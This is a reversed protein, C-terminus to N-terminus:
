LLIKSKIKSLVMMVRKGHDFIKHNNKSNQSYNILEDIMLSVSEQHLINPIEIEGTRYMMQNIKNTPKFEIRKNYIKIKKDRENDDFEIIKKDGAILIRRSKIPSYWSVKINAFFGSPYNLTITSIFNKNGFIRQSNVDHLSVTSVRFYEDKNSYSLIKFRTGERGRQIVFCPHNFM